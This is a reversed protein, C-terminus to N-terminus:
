GPGLLKQVLQANGYTGPQRSAAWIEKTLGGAKDALPFVKSKDFGAPGPM